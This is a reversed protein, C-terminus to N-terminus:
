EFRSVSDLCVEMMKNAFLAFAMRALRNGLLVSVFGKLDSSQSSTSKWSCNRESHLETTEAQKRQQVTPKSVDAGQWGVLGNM